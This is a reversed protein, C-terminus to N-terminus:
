ATSYNKVEPWAVLLGRLLELFAERHRKYIDKIIYVAGQNLFNPLTALIICAPGLM